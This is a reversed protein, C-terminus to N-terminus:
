ERMFCLKIPASSVDQEEVKLLKAFLKVPSCEKTFMKLGRCVLLQHQNEVLIVVFFLATCIATRASQLELSRLAASGIFWSNQVAWASRVRRLQCELTSDVINDKRHLISM